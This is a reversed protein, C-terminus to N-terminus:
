NGTDAHKTQLADCLQQCDATGILQMQRQLSELSHKISTVAQMLALHAWLSPWCLLAATPNAIKIVAVSMCALTDRISKSQRQSYQCSWRILILLVYTDSCLVWLSSLCCVKCTYHLNLVYDSMLLDSASCNNLAVHIFSSTICCSDVLLHVTASAQRPVPSGVQLCVPVEARSRLM